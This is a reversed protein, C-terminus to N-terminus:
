IEDIFTEAMWRVSEGSSRIFARRSRRDPLTEVVSQIEEEAIEPVHFPLFHATM